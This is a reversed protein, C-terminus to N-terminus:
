TRFNEILKSDTQHGACFEQIPCESCKPSDINFCFNTGIYMLGDDLEGPGYEGGNLLQAIPIKQIEYKKPPRTNTLLHKMCLEIYSDHPVLDLNLTAKMGRINTVRIYNTGGKGQGKQIVENKILDRLSTWLFFYGTRFLVRGANSDFPVEFSYKGWSPLSSKRTLKFTYVFWKAFLHAAKDGIAKGLGFKKHEKLKWSMVESSSGWVEDNDDELYDVVIEPNDPITNFYELALPIALPVGWRFVAYNLTQTSNDMFLNYKSANTHNAAAWIESRINKVIEHVTDIQDLVIGLSNFFNLPNHFIRIEKRYLFNVTDTLLTRVGETDPGQDLVANLLLYRALIERRTCNGDLEGLEEEKLGNQDNFYYHFIEVKSLPPESKNERGISAIKELLDFKREEM